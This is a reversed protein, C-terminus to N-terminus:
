DKDKASLIKKESTNNAETIKRFFNCILIEQINNIAKHKKRNKKKEKIKTKKKGHTQYGLPFNHRSFKM